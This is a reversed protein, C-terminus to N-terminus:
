RRPQPRPTAATLRSHGSQALGKAFFELFPTDVGAGAGHALAVTRPADAPGDLLFHPDAALAFSRPRADPREKRNYAPLSFPAASVTWGLLSPLAYRNRVRARRCIPQRSLLRGDLESGGAGGSVGRASAPPLPGRM